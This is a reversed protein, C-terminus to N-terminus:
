LNELAENDLGHRANRNSGLFMGIDELPIEGLHAQVIAYFFSLRLSMKNVRSFANNLKGKDNNSMHIITNRLDSIERCLDGIDEKKCISYYEVANGIIYSIVDKFSNSNSSTLLGTARDIFEQDFQGNILAKFKKLRKKHEAKTVKSDPGIERGLVEFAQAVAVFRSLGSKTEQLSRSFLWRSLEINKNETFWNDFIKQIIDRQTFNALIQHHMPPTFLNQDEGLQWVLAISKHDSCFFEESLFSFSELSYVSLVQEIKYLQKKFNEITTPEDSHVHIDVTSQVSYGSKSDSRSYASTNIGFSFGTEGMSIQWENPGQWVWIEKPNGLADFAEKNEEGFPMITKLDPNGFFGVLRADRATVSTATNKLTDLSSGIWINEPFFELHYTRNGTAFNHSSNTTGRLCSGITVTGYKTTVGTFTAKLPAKTDVLFPVNEKDNGLIDKEVTELLLQLVPQGDRWILAGYNSYEGFNWSTFLPEKNDRFNLIEELRSM